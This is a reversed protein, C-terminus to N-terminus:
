EDIDEPTNSQVILYLTSKRFPKESEEDSLYAFWGADQFLVGVERGLEWDNNPVEARARGRMVLLDNLRTMLVDRPTVPNM